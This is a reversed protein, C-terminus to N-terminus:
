NSPALVADAAHSIYVEDTLHKEIYASVYDVLDPQATEHAQEYLEDFRRELVGQWHSALIELQAKKVEPNEYLLEQLTSKIATHVQDDSFSASSAGLRDRVEKIVGQTFHDIANM